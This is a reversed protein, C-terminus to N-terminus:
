DIVGEQFGAVVGSELRAAAVEPKGVIADVIGEVLVVLVKDGLVHAVAHGLELLADDVPRDLNVVVVGVVGARQLRGIDFGSSVIVCRGEPAATRGDPVPSHAMSSSFMLLLKPATWALRSMSRLTRRPVM